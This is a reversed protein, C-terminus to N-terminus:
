LIQPGNPKWYGDHQKWPYRKADARGWSGNKAIKQGLQIHTVTSRFTHYLLDTPDDRMLRRCERLRGAPQRIGKPTAAPNVQVKLSQLLNSFKIM